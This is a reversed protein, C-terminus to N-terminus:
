NKQTSLIPPCFIFLHAVGTKTVFTVISRGASMGHVSKHAWSDFEGGKM